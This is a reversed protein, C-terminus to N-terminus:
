GDGQVLPEVGFRVYGVVAIAASLNLVMPTNADGTWRRDVNGLLFGSGSTFPFQNALSAFHVTGATGADSKIHGNVTGAGALFLEKIVIRKNAGQAPIITNDGSSAVAIALEM